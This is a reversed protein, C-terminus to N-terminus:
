ASRRYHLFLTGQPSRDSNVLELRDLVDDEAVGDLSFLEYLVVKRSM